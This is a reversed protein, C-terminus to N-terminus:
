EEWLFKILISCMGLATFMAVIMMPIVYVKALEEALFEFSIAAVVVVAIVVQFLLLIALRQRWTTGTFNDQTAM